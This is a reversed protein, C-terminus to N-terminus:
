YLSPLEPDLDAGDEDSQQDFHDNLGPEKKIKVEPDQKIANESDNSNLAKNLFVIQDVVTPNLKASTKTVTLGAVSPVLTGM